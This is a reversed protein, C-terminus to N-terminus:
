NNINMFSKLRLFLTTNKMEDFKLKSNKNRNSKLYNEIQTLINLLLINFVDGIVKLNNYEESDIDYIFLWFIAV